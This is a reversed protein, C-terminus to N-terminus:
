QTAIQEYRNSELQALLPQISYTFEALDTKPLPSASPLNVTLPNRHVGNVRFEYHLHPGTALGSKGIYGIIQGQKVRSGKKLTRAYRSLHAYLTSYKKGHQLIITKGYGGKRNRFIVKGDGAAKIPTGISAVYDVGKHARIKNLIPHKRRLNFRSSIRAFSVPMRLFAKRMIRGDKSYYGTRGESNTYRFAQHIKGQNIFEAAIINGDKVKEGDIYHEEYVVTFSDGQRIDLAFDIDWSFISIMNMILRESLGAQLGARYLSHRIKNIAVKRHLELPQNVLKISLTHDTRTVHLQNVKDKEFILEELTGSKIRVRLRQGPYIRKLDESQEGLSMVEALQGYINLGSFLSSLTDGHKVVLEHWTGTQKLATQPPLAAKKDLKAAISEAETLSPLQPVHLPISEVDHPTSSMPASSSSTNERANTVFVALVVLGGVLFAIRLYRYRHMSPRKRQLCTNQNAMKHFRFDV